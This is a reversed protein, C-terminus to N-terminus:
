GVVGVRSSTNRSFCGGFHSAIRTVLTQPTHEARSILGTSRGLLPDKAGRKIGNSRQGAGKRMTPREPLSSSICTPGALLPPHVRWYARICARPPTAPSVRGSFTLSRSPPIYSSAGALRNAWLFASRRTLKPKVKSPRFSSMLSFGSFEAARSGFDFERHNVPPAFSGYAIGVIIAEPLDNDYTLFLHQPAIWPFTSDGDLLYVIPYRKGEQASYGEPLRIYIHYTSGMVSSKLPFYDGALSPL